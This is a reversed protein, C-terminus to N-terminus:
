WPFWGRRQDGCYAGFIHDDADFEVRAMYNGYSMMSM